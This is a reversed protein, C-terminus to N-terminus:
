NLGRPTPVNVQPTRRPLVGTTIAVWDIFVDDEVLPMIGNTVADRVADPVLALQRHIKTLKEVAVAEELSGQLPPNSSLTNLLEPIRAMADRFHILKSETLGLYPAQARLTNVQKGIAFLLGDLTNKAM